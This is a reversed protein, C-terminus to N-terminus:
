LRIVKRYCCMQREGLYGAFFDFEGNNYSEKMEELAEKIEEEEFGYREGYELLSGKIFNYVDFANFFIEPEDYKTDTVVFLTKTM